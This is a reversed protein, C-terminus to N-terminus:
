PESFLLEVGQRRLQKNCQALAMLSFAFVLLEKDRDGRRRESIM